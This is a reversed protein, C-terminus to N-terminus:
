VIVLCITGLVRSNKSADRVWQNQLFLFYDTDPVPSKWAALLLLVHIYIITSFFDIELSNIKSDSLLFVLHVEVSNVEDDICVTCLLCSQVSM